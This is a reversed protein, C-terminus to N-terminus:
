RSRDPGPIKGAAAPPADTADVDPSALLTQVDLPGADAVIAAFGEAIQAPTFGVARLRNDVDQRIAARTRTLHRSVTGEHEGLLRGIAALTVQQVYYLRLRLRDRAPLASVAAALVPRVADVFRRHEPSELVPATSLAAPIDVAGDSEPLPDFRRTARARDVHRQALVARLWTGLSSRGHYYRFLSVREGDRERLGFLDAYLGDALERASGAPDIADAARYLVPRFERVFHDWAADSGAACACALALDELHLANVFRDVDGASAPRDRFHYAAARELAARWSEFPL